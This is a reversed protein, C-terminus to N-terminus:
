PRPYSGAMKKIGHDRIVLWTDLIWKCDPVLVRKDKVIYYHDLELKSKCLDQYCTPYACVKKYMAKKIKLKFEDDKRWDQGRLSRGIKKADFGVATKLVEKDVGDPTTLYYWYGEISKFVGEDLEVQSEAFNTLFRGLETSGQSYINIHNVGDFKPYLSTFDLDLDTELSRFDSFNFLNYIKIGHAKAIRLSHSTGGNEPNETYCIVFDVRSNLDEGLIIQSNRGFLRKTYDKFGSFNNAYKSAENIAEPSADEPRFIDCEGRSGKQFASDSGIAGGSRVRFGEFSLFRSLAELAEFTRQNINRSGIGAYLM